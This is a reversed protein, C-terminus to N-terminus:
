SIGCCGIGLAADRMPTDNDACIKNPCTVLVVTRWYIWLGFREYRPSDPGAM